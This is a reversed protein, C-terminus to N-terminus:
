GYLRNGKLLACFDHLFVFLGRELSEPVHAESNRKLPPELEAAAELWFHPIPSLLLLQLLLV